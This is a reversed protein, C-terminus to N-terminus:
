RLRIKSYPIGGFSILSTKDSEGGHSGMKVTVDEGTSGGGGGTGPIFFWTTERACNGCPFSVNDRFSTGSNAISLGFGGSRPIDRVVPYINPGPVTAGVAAGAMVSGFRFLNKNKLIVIIAIIGIMFIVLPGIPIGALKSKRAM